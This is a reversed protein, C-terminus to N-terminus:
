GSDLQVGGSKMFPRLKTALYDLYVRDPLEDTAEDILHLFYSLTRIPGLPEAEPGRFTRRAAALLFAARIPELPVGRRYLERAVARDRRSPREPTDSLSVYTALVANVYDTIAPQGALAM